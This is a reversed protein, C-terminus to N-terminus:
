VGRTDRRVGGGVRRQMRSCWEHCQLDVREQRVEHGLAPSLNPLTKSRDRCHLLLKMTGLVGSAFIVNDGRFVRTKTPLPGPRKVSVLYGGGTAPVVETVESEARVEAGRKEAFYLYNKVLTNKANHRCGVM